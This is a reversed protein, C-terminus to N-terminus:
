LTFITKFIKPKPYLRLNQSKLDNKTIKPELYLTNKKNQLNEM